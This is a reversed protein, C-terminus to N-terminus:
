CRSRRRSSCSRALLESGLAEVFWPVSLPLFPLMLLVGMIFSEDGVYWLFAEVFMLWMAYFGLAMCVWPTVPKTTRLRPSAFYHLSEICLLVVALTGALSPPVFLWRVRHAAALGWVTGLGVAAVQTACVLAITVLRKRM